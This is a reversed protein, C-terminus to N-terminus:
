ADVVKPFVIANMYISKKQKILLITERSKYM